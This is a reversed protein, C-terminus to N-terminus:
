DWNGLSAELCSQVWPEPLEYGLALLAHDDALQPPVPRGMFYKKFEEFEKRRVGFEFPNVRKFDAETFKRVPEAKTGQASVATAITLVM